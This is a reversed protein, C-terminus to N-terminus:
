MDSHTSGVSLQSRVTHAKTDFNIPIMQIDHPLHPSMMTIRLAHLLFSRQGGGPLGSIVLADCTRSGVDMLEQDIRRGRIRSCM